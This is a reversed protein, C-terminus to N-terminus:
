GLSLDLGAIQDPRFIIVLVGFMVESRHGRVSSRCLFIRPCDALVEADGARSPMDMKVALIPPLPGPYRWTLTLSGSGSKLLSSSRERQRRGFLPRPQPPQRRVVVAPQLGQGEIEGMKLAPSMRWLYHNRGRLAFRVPEEGRQSSHM